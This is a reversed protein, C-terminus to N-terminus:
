GAWSDWDQVALLWFLFALLIRQPCFRSERLCPKGRSQWYAVKLADRGGLGLKDTVPLGARCFFLQMFLFSSADSPLASLYQSLRLINPLLGPVCCANSSRSGKILLM